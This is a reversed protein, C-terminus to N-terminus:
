LYFNDHNCGLIRQKEGVSGVNIIQLEIEGHM